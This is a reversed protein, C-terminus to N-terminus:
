EKTLTTSSNADAIAFPREVVYTNGSSDTQNLQVSGIEIAKTAARDVRLWKAPATTAAEIVTAPSFGAAAVANMAYPLSLWSATGVTVDSSVFDPAFGLEYGKRAATIDFNFRGHGIDFLVGRSRARKAAEFNRDSKFVGGSNATFVHSAIDGSRLRDLIEVTMMDDEDFQGDQQGFHVMIPLSAQEAAKVTREVLEVGLLGIAPQVARMKLGRAVDPYRVAEEVAREPQFDSRAVIEPAKDLGMEAVNVLGYVEGWGESRAKRAWDAFAGFAHPGASGADLMIEARIAEPYASLDIGVRSVQNFLHCHIDIVPAGASTM